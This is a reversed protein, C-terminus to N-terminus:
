ESADGIVAAHLCSECTTEDLKATVWESSAYTGCRTYYYWDGLPEVCMHVIASEAM